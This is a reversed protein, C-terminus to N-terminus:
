SALRPGFQYFHERMYRMTLDLCSTPRGGVRNAATEDGTICRAYPQVANEQAHPELVKVRAAQFEDRVHRPWPSAVREEMGGCGGIRRRVGARGFREVVVVGDVRAEVRGAGGGGAIGSM